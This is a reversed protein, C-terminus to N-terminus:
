PSGGYASIGYVDIGTLPWFFISERPLMKKQRTAQPWGQCPYFDITTSILRVRRWRTRCASWLLSPLHLVLSQCVGGSGICHTVCFM